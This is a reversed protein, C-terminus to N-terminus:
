EEPDGVDVKSWDVQGRERDIQELAQQARALDASRVTVSVEGPAEARFASTLVGFMRAEVGHDALANVLFVAEPEYPVSLLTVPSNADITM